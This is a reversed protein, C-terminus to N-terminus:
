KQCCVSCRQGYQASLAWLNITQNVVVGDGGSMASTTDANNMIRGSSNPVFLEPGREGVLMPRGRGASGGGAATPLDDFGAIGLGTSGFVAKLIRNVVAMQLFTSVIQSVIDKAFDRFSSLASQGEMLANVFDTTFSQAAEAIAPAMITLFTDSTEDLESKLDDLHNMLRVLQDTTFDGLGSEIVEDLQGFLKNVQELPTVTDELLGKMAAIADVQESTPGSDQSVIVVPTDPLDRLIRQLNALTKGMQIINEDAAETSGFGIKEFAELVINGETASAIRARQRVTKDIEDTLEEIQHRIAIKAEQFSEENILEQIFPKITGGERQVRMAEAFGAIMDSTADAMDKFIQGLGSQFVENAFEKFAIQVNSFKVGFTDMQAQMLGGFSDQLGASLERMITSAGEATQGFETIELRTKGIRQQLIQFVPIGRDALQNLDELGLAGQTSRGLMRVLSNFSELPTLTASAADGFAALVQENPEIGQAKLSIFAKTVDELQFPTERAFDKIRDFAAGGAADGGFMTSLSIRLREFEDGVSVVNKVTQASAVGALIPGLKRLASNLREAGRDTANIQKKLNDLGRTVGKVDAKIEVILEDVTAM